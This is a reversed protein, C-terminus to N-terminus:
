VGPKQEPKNISVGNALYFEKQAEEVPETGYISCSCADFCHLIDSVERQLAKPVKLM